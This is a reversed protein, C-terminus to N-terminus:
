RDIWNFIRDQLSRRKQNFRKAAERLVQANNKSYKGFIELYEDQTLMGTKNYWKEFTQPNDFMADADPGQGKLNRDRLDGYLKMQRVSIDKNYLKTFLSEAEATQPGPLGDLKGKYLNIQQLFDQYSTMDGSMAKTMNDMEEESNKRLIMKQYMGKAPTPDMSDLDPTKIEPYQGGEYLENYRKYNKVPPEKEQQPKKAERNDKIAQQKMRESYDKDSENDYQIYKPM